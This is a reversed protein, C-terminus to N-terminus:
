VAGEPRYPARGSALASDLLELRDQGWFVEGDLVYSPAGFVGAAVAEGRTAEYRALVAADEAQKLLAAGDFGARDASAAVAPGSWRTVEIAISPSTVRSASQTRRTSRLTSAPSSRRTRRSAPPTSWM